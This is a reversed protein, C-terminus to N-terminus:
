DGAWTAVSSAELGVRGWLYPGQDLESCWSKRWPLATKVLGELEVAFVPSLYSTVDLSSTWALYTGMGLFIEILQLEIPLSNACVALCDDVVLSVLYGSSSSNAASPWFLMRLSFIIMSLIMFLITSIDM